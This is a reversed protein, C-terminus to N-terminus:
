HNAKELKNNQIRYKCIWYLLSFVLVLLFGKWFVINSAIIFFGIFLQTSAYLGSVLLHPWKLENALYQYLHKRHAQFINEKLYIRHVLTLIVDVGYLTLLLIFRLSFDTYFAPKIILYGDQIQWRHFMFGLVFFIILYALSVSGVDGAFCVAKKRFNFFAFVIISLLIYTVPNLFIDGTRFFLMPLFISIGYMGTMGNIGDMFNIANLCGVAVIYICLLFWLPLMQFLGLEYFCLTFAIFHFILRLKNSVPGIDDLFSIVSVLIIGITFFPFPFNFACFYILWAIPFIIGGGRITSKTHSSRENPKDIINFKDALRLYAFEVIFLLFFIVIFTTM